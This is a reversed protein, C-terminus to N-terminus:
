RWVPAVGLISGSRRNPISLAAVHAEQLSFFVAHSDAASTRKEAVQGNALVVRDDGSGGFAADGQGWYEILKMSIPLAGWRKEQPSPDFGAEGIRPTPTQMLNLRLLFRRM